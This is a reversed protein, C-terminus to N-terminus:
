KVPAAIEIGARELARRVEQAISLAGKSDSHLCLTEVLTTRAYHNAVIRKGSDGPRIRGFVSPSKASHDLLDALVVTM